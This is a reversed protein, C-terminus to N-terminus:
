SDTDETNDNGSESANKDGIKYDGKEFADNIVHALIEGVYENFETDNVLEELDFPSEILGYNYSLLPTVEEDGMNELDEWTLGEPPEMTVRGYKYYTDAWKGKKIHIVWNEEGERESFCFEDSEM